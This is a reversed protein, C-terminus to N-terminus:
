QCGRFLHRCSLYVVRRTEISSKFHLYTWFKQVLTRLFHIEFHSSIKIPQRKRRRERIDRHVRDNHNNNNHVNLKYVPFVLKLFKRLLNFKYLMYKMQIHTSQGSQAIFSESNQLCRTRRFWEFSMAPM